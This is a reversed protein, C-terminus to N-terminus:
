DGYKLMFIKVNNADILDKAFDELLSKTGSIYPEKVSSLGKYSSDDIRLLTKLSHRHEGQIDAKIQAAIEKVKKSNVPNAEIEKALNTNYLKDWEHTDTKKGLWRDVQRQTRFDINARSAANRMVYADRADTLLKKAQRNAELNTGVKYAGYAVLMSGVVIAGTKLFKKQRDTLRNKSKTKENKNSPEISSGGEYRARTEENWVGWKMGKVGHHYLENKSM